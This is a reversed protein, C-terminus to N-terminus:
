TGRLIQAFLHPYLPSLPVGTKSFHKVKEYIGAKGEKGGIQHCTKLPLRM